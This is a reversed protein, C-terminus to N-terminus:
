NQKSTDPAAIEYGTPQAFKTKHELLQTKWRSQADQMGAADLKEVGLPLLITKTIVELSKNAAVRVGAAPDALAGVLADTSEKYDLTALATCAAARVNEDRDKAAIVVLARLSLERTRRAIEPVARVRVEPLADHLAKIFAQDVEAFPFQKLMDAAFKRREGDPHSTLMKCLEDITYEIRHGLAKEDRVTELIKDIDERAHTKWYEAPAERILRELLEIARDFRDARRYLASVTFLREAPLNGKAIAADLQAAADSTKGAKGYADALALRLTMDDPTKEVAPKLVAIAKEIDNRAIRLDALLLPGRVPDEDCRICSEAAQVAEDMRGSAQMARALGFYGEALDPDLEVARKLRVVSLDYKKTLYFCIGLGEHPWPNRDDAAAAAQFQTQADDIKNIKGLARGYLYLKVSDNRDDTKYFEVFSADDARKAFAADQDRRARSVARRLAQRRAASEEAVAVSSQAGTLSAGVVNTTGLAMRSSENAVRARDRATVAEQSGGAACSAALAALGAFPLFRAITFKYCTPM